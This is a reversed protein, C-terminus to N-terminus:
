RTAAGREEGRGLVTITERGALLSTTRLRGATGGHKGGMERRELLAM